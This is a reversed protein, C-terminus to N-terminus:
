SASGLEARRLSNAKNADGAGKDSEGNLAFLSLRLRRAQEDLESVHNSAARLERDIARRKLDADTLRKLVSDLEDAILKAPSLDSM